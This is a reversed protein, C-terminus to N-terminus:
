AWRLLFMTRDAEQWFRYTYGNADVKADIKSEKFWQKIQNRKLKLPHESQKFDWPGSGYARYWYPWYSHAHTEAKYIM